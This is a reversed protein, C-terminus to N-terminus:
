MSQRVLFRRLSFVGNCQQKPALVSWLRESLCPAVSRKQSLPRTWRDRKLYADAATLSDILSPLVM